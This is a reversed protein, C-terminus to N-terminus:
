LGPIPLPGSATVCLVRIDRGHVFRVEGGAIMTFATMHPHDPTLDARGAGALASAIAEQETQSLPRSTVTAITAMTARREYTVRSAYDARRACPFHIWLTPDRALPTGAAAFQEGIWVTDWLVQAFADGVHLDYTEFQLSTLQSDHLSYADLFTPMTTVQSAEWPFAPSEPDWPLPRQDTM